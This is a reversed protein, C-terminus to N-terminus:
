ASLRELLPRSGPRTGLLRAYVRAGRVIAAAGDHEGLRMTEALSRWPSPLAFCLSPGSGDTDLAHVYTTSPFGVYLTYTWGDGAVFRDIPRGRMTLGWGETSSAPVIGKESVDVNEVPDDDLEGTAVDAKRVAYIAESDKVSEILFLTKGDGSLADVAFSGTFRLERVSGGTRLVAFRDRTTANALVLASGDSSAGSRHGRATVTGLAWDGALTAAPAGDRTVITSGGLRRVRWSAGSRSVLTEDNVPSIPDILWDTAQFEETDNRPILPRAVTTPAMTPAAVPATSPVSPRPATTATVLKKKPRTAAGAPAILAALAVM